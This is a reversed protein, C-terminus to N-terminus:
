HYTSTICDACLNPDTNDFCSLNQRLLIKLEDNFLKWEQSSLKSKRYCIKKEECPKSADPVKTLISFHDSTDSM